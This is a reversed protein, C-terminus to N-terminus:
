TGATAPVAPKARSPESPRTVAAVTSALAELHALSSTGAIVGTVGPRGAMAAVAALPTLTGRFRIVERVLVSVHPAADLLAMGADLVDPAVEIISVGQMALAAELSEVDDCAVGFRRVKGQRRAAELTTVLRPDAIQAASPSHLLLADLTDFRLRRLSRDLATAISEPSFDSDMTAARRATVGARASASRAILPKLLPKFPRLLRMKASFRKGVKSVVFGADRRGRLLQGIFRESDGQGYVDATDFLTVGLELARDLLRRTDAASATNGFSGIRSCGLGLTSVRDQRSGRTLVPQHMPRM